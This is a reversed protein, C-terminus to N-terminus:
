DHLEIRKKCLNLVYNYYHMKYQQQLYDEFSYSKKLEEVPQDAKNAMEKIDKEYTELNFENAGTADFSQGLLMEQIGRTLSKRVYAESEELSPNELEVSAYKVIYDEYSSNERAAHERVNQLKHAIDEESMDFESGDIGAKIWAQAIKFVNQKKLQESFDHYLHAKYEKITHVHEINLGEIFEDTVEPVIKRQANVVKLTTEEGDISIRKVEGIKMGVVHEEIRKNFGIGVSVQVNSKNLDTNDSEIDVTVIDGSVIPDSSEILVVHKKAVFSIADEVQSEIKEHQISLEEPIIFTSFDYRNLLKSKLM